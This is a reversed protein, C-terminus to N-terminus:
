ASARGGGEGAGNGVNNNTEKVMAIRIATFSFIMTNNIQSGRISLFTSYKKLFHKNAVQVNENM